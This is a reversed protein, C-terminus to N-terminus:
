GRRINITEESADLFHKYINYQARIREPMNEYTGYQDIIASLLDDAKGMVQEADSATWDDPDELNLDSFFENVREETFQEQQTPGIAQTMEQEVAKAGFSVGAQGPQGGGVGAGISLQSGAEAGAAGMGVGESSKLREVEDVRKKAEAWMDDPSNRMKYYPSDEKQADNRIKEFESAYAKSREAESKDEKPEDIKRWEDGVLQWRTGEVEITEAKFRDELSPVPIREQRLEDRKAILGDLIEQKKLPDSIRDSGRTAAIDDNIKRLEEATKKSYRGAALDDRERADAEREYYFARDADERERSFMRAEADRERYLDARAKDREAYLERTALDRERDRNMTFERNEKDRALQFQQGQQQLGYRFAQTQFLEQRRQALQRNERMLDLAYKERRQRARGKGALYAGGIAAGGYTHTTRIAM